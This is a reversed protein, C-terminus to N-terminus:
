ESVHDLGPNCLHPFSWNSPNDSCNNTQENALTTRALEKLATNRSKVKWDIYSTHASFLLLGTLFKPRVIELCKYLAKPQYQFRFTSM